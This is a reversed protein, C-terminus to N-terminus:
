RREGPIELTRISIATSELQAPPQNGDTFKIINITLSKNDTEDKAPLPKGYARDLVEKAAMLAVREDECEILEVIRQFARPSAKQALARVDRDV